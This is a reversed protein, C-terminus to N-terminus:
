FSLLRIFKQEPSAAQEENCDSDASLSLGAETKRFGDTLSLISM